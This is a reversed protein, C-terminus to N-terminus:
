KMARPDLADRLGDGVFNVCLVVLLLTLGPFLMLYALSTGVSSQADAILNGLSVDPLQIGAGLFSLTSETLIALGVALTSFVVISGLCNPLLHRVIIRPGSAGVARAGDVFDQERLSLIEGRVIRAMPMWGLFSLVLIMGGVETAPPLDFLGFFRPDPNSAIILLVALAPLVLMLDTFRMLLADLWGGYYGALAGIVVGILASLLATGLGILLSKQLAHLVRTLQDRGLKDTGFPHALSAQQRAEARVSSTILPDVSYPSLVDVFAAAAGLLVLIALAAVAIRHRVFRRGVLRWQSRIPEDTESTEVYRDSVEVPWEPIM